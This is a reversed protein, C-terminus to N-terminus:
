EVIRFEKRLLQLLKTNQEKYKKFHVLRTSLLANLGYLGIMNISGNKDFKELGKFEFPIIADTQEYGKMAQFVDVENETLVAHFDYDYHRIM